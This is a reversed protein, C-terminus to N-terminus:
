TPAQEVEVAVRIQMVRILQGATLAPAAAELGERGEPHAIRPEVGEGVEVGVPFPHVLLPHRLATVGLARPGVLAGLHARASKGQM